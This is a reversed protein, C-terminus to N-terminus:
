NFDKPINSPFSLDTFQTTRYYTNLSHKFKEVYAVVTNHSVMYELARAMSPANNEDVSEMMRDFSEAECKRLERFVDESFENCPNM